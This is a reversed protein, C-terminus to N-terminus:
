SRRVSPSLGYARARGPGTVRATLGTVKALPVAMIGTATFIECAPGDIVIRVRNGRVPMTWRGETTRVRLRGHDRHLELALNGTGGVLVLGAGGEPPGNIWEIDVLRPLPNAAGDLPVADARLAAVNPHPMAVLADDETSLLHPISIAGAWGAPADAVGRLWHILGRRGAADTFTSGAYYSPGYTLRGWREAIFRGDTYTGQAYAEYYLAQTDSVSVTLVWKDGLPFLQPCEWLSGTWVPETRSAHRSILEGDYVWRRLDPSSYVLAAATGDRLGVGMLLRWRDGDPFVFPDRFAVADVTPPLEAVVPGKTWTTWRESDPHAVRIRGIQVDPTSVATYFLAPAGGDPTVISGSWCGDDGDGPALAVPGHSWHLLDDSTAHGWHCGAAWDSRDPVHQFFLHYTGHDHTLGLPDNLWGREATLHLQPRGVAGNM